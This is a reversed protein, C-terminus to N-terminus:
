VVRQDAHPRACLGRNGVECASGYPQLQLRAALVVARTTDRLSGGGCATLRASLDAAMLLRSVWSGATGCTSLATAM